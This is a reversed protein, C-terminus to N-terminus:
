PRSIALFEVFEEKSMANLAQSMCKKVKRDTSLYEYRPPQIETLPVAADTPLLAVV